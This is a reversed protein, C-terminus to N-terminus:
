DMYMYVSQQHAMANEQFVDLVTRVLRTGLM